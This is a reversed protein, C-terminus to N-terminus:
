AHMVLSFKIKTEVNSQIRMALMWIYKKLVRIYNKLVQTIVEFHKPNPKTRAPKTNAPFM